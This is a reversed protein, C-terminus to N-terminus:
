IELTGSGPRERNLLSLQGDEQQAERLGELRADRQEATEAAM